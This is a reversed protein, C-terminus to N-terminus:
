RESETAQSVPQIKGLRYATLPSKRIDAEIQAILEDLAFNLSDFQRCVERMKAVTQKVKEPEPQPQQTM